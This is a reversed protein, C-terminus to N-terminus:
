EKDGKPTSYGDKAWGKGVLAFSSRSVLKKMRGKCGECLPPAEGHKRLLEIQLGCKDCGYEYIPMPVGPHGMGGGPLVLSGALTSVALM